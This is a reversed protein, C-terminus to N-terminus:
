YVVSVPLLAAKMCSGVFLVSIALHDRTLPNWGMVREQYLLDSVGVLHEWSISHTIAHIYWTISSTELCSFFPQFFLSIAALFFMDTIMALYDWLGLMCSSICHSSFCFCSCIKFHVTQSKNLFVSKVCVYMLLLWFLSLIERFRMFMERKEFWCNMKWKNDQPISHCTCM